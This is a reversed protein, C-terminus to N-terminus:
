RVIEFRVEKKKKYYYEAIIAFGDKYLITYALESKESEDPYKNAREIIAKTYKSHFAPYYNLKGFHHTSYFNWEDNVVLVDSNRIYQRSFIPNCRMINDKNDNNTLGKLEGRKNIYCTLNGTYIGGPILNMNLFFGSDGDAKVGWYKQQGFVIDENKQYIFTFPYFNFNQTHMSEDFSAWWFGRSEDSAPFQGFKDSLKPALNGFMYIRNKYDFIFQCNLDMTSNFAFAYRTLELTNHASDILKGHLGFKYMIINLRRHNYDPLSQYAFVTDDSIKIIQVSTNKVAENSSRPLIEGVTVLTNNKIKQLRLLNGETNAQILKDKSIYFDGQRLDSTREIVQEYIMDGSEIDIQGVYNQKNQNTIYLTTSDHLFTFFNAAKKGNGDEFPYSVEWQQKLTNDILVLYLTNENDKQSVLLQGHQHLDILAVVKQKTESTPIILSQAAIFSFINSLALFFVTKILTNIMRHNLVLKKLKNASLFYNIKRIVCIQCYALNGTFLLISIFNCVFFLM